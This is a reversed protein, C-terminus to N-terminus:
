SATTPLWTAVRGFDLDAIGEAVRDGPRDDGEGDNGPAPGNGPFRDRGIGAAVGLHTDPGQAHNGSQIREPSGERVSIKGLDGGGAGGGAKHRDAAVVLGGIGPM